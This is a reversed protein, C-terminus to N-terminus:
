RTNRAAAAEAAVRLDNVLAAVAPLAMAALATTMRELDARSGRGAFGALGCM